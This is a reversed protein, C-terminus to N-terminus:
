SPLPCLRVVVEVCPHGSVVEFLSREPQRKRSEASITQVKAMPVGMFRKRATGVFLVQDTETILTGRIPRGGVIDVRVRPLPEPFILALLLSAVVIAGFSWAQSIIFYRRARGTRIARALGLANVTTVPILVAVVPWPALALVYSIGVLSIAMLCLLAGLLCALAMGALWDPGRRIVTMLRVATAHGPPRQLQRAQAAELAWPLPPVWLSGRAHRARHRRNDVYLGAGFALAALAVIAGFRLATDIGRSLLQSLPVIPLADHVVLGADRLQASWVSAGIAYLAGGFAAAIGPLVAGIELV